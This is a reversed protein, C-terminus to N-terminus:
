VRARDADQTFAGRGSVSDAVLGDSGGFRAKLVRRARHYRRTAAHRSAPLGKLSLRDGAGLPETLDGLLGDRFRSSDGAVRCM